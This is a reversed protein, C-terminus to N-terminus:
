SRRLRWVYAASIPTGRLREWSPKLAVWEDDILREAMEVLEFGVAVGATVHDSVLHVNTTIAIDEGDATTFHTPMGSSMIFQPHFSVLVFLGAPAALRRAEAYFGALDAVHEDVLSSVVLDYAASELGTDTVDGLRLSNHAGRERARDLMEATIDVGDVSHVGNARLWSGTRGTGCGLDAAHQSNIWDPVQLCELLALDMADEVTDEYSTVWQGYGTRADVTRYGRRDYVDFNVM